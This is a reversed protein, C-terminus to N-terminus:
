KKFLGRLYNNMGHIVEPPIEHGGPFVQLKGILGAETLLSELKQAGELSLLDDYQGHSQYFTLGARNKAKDKLQVQDILNSSLLILGRPKEPATIALGAAMMAGQSFGALVVDGFPIKLQALTGLLSEKFKKLGPMTQGSLDRHTGAMQARQLAEIDIPFWGRGYVHPGIPVQLTGNPFLWTTGPPVAMVNALPVLDTADAGYGHLFVICPAGPQGPIEIIDLDGIRRMKSPRAM